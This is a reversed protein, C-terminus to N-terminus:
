PQGLIITFPTINAVVFRLLYTYKYGLTNYTKIYLPYVRFTLIPLNRVTAFGPYKTFQELLSHEKFFSRSIINYDAGIDLM